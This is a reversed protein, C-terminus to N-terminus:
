WVLAGNGSDNNIANLMTSESVTWAGTNETECGWQGTGCTEIYTFMDTSQNYGIIAVDHSGNRYGSKQWDPLYGDDVSVAPPVQSLYVDDQVDTQLTSLSLGPAVLLYFYSSWDSRNEGSAEWNLDNVLDANFTNADDGGNPNYAYYTEEGPSTYSPAYSQYAIYMMYPRLHPVNLWYLTIHPDSYYGNGRDINVSSWYSLAVTTAGPGCLYWMYTDTYATGQGDTGQALPEEIYQSVSDNLQYISPPTCQPSMPSSATGNLDSGPCDPGGPRFVKHALKLRVWSANQALKSKGGTNLEGYKLGLGPGNAVTAAQAVTQPLLMAALLGVAFLQICIWPRLLALLKRM